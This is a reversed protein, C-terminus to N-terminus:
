SAKALAAMEHRDHGYVDRRFQSTGDEDVWATLYVLAVPVSRAPRVTQTRGSTIRANLADPTGTEADDLLFAALDMPDRVRVCGSSFTRTSRAFLGRGPTSHLYVSHDNPFLFKIRGLANGGGPRQRLRLGTIDINEATWDMEIPDIERSEGGWGDFVQFNNRSLYEPDERLKPLIDERAITHPVTWTPNLVMRNIASRLRPTPRDRTGVIVDTRFVTRGNDRGELAAGAINVEVSRGGADPPMSRLRQLNLAMQRLRHAAPIAMAARTQPGVRGDVALGHRAQFRKIAAVLDPTMSTAAQQNAAAPTDPLDGSVRLRRRVQAVEPHSAGPELKEGQEAILPWGGAEALDHYALLGRRLRAQRDGEDLLRFLRGPRAADPDDSAIAALAGPVGGALKPAWAPRRAVAAHAYAALAATLATDHRAVAEASLGEAGVSPSEPVTIGNLDDAWATVLVHRVQRGPATWGRADTWAPRFQRREYFARAFDAQPALVEPRAEILASLASIHAPDVAAVPPAGSAAARREGLDAWGGTGDIAVCAATLGALLLVVALRVPAPGCRGLAAVLHQLTAGTRSELLPHGVPGISRKKLSILTM